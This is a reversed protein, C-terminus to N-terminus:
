NNENMVIYYSSWVTFVEKRRMSKFRSLLMILLVLNFISATGYFIALFENGPHILTFTLLGFGYIPVGFYLMVWIRGCLFRVHAEAKIVQRALASNKSIIVNKSHNFYAKNSYGFILEDNQDDGNNGVVLDQKYKEDLYITIKALGSKIFWDNISNRYPFKETKWKDKRRFIKLFATSIKDTNGPAYMRIGEGYLYSLFFFAAAFVIPSNNIKDIIFAHSEYIKFHVLTTALALLMVFSLYTGPIIIGFFTILGLRETQM